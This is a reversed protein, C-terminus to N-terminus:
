NKTYRDWVPNQVLQGGSGNGAGNVKLEESYIPNYLSYLQKLRNKVASTMSMYTQLTETPNNTAEAQRVLDFWFKGEGIFERQRERYLLQLLQGANKNQGYYNNASHDVKPTTPQRPM